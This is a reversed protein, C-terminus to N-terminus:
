SPTVSVDGEDDVIKIAKASPWLWLAAAVTM